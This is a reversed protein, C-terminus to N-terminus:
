VALSQLGSEKSYKHVMFTLERIWTKIAVAEPSINNAVLKEPNILVNFFAANTKTFVDFHLDTDPQYSEPTQHFDYSCFYENEALRSFDIQQNGKLKAMVLIELSVAALRHIKEQNMFGTPQCLLLCSQLEESSDFVSQAFAKLHYPREQGYLQLQSAKKSDFDAEIVHMYLKKLQEELPKLAKLYEKESALQNPNLYQFAKPNGPIIHDVDILDQEYQRIFNKMYVTLGALTDLDFDSGYLNGLYEKFALNYALWFPEEKISNRCEKTSDLVSQYKYDQNQIVTRVQELEDGLQIRSTLDNSTYLDTEAKGM